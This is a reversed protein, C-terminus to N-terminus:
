SIRQIWFRQDNRKKRDVIKFFGDEKMLGIDGTLFYDGHFCKATEEPKNWYGKM